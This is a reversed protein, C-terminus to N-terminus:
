YSQLMKMYNYLNELKEDKIKACFLFRSFPM